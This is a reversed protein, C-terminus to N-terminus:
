KVGYLAFSSNANFTGGTFTITSIAATNMWLGSLLTINGSGNKDCGSLLRMTKYKNINAYNLIDFIHAAFTSTTNSVGGTIMSTQTAGAGATASAGSGDLYHWAYNSGSDNNFNVSANFNSTGNTLARLQLHTYTSPINSFSISTSTASLTVTALSDYSGTPSYLHGTKASEMIGNLLFPTPM